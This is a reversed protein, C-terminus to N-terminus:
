FYIIINLTVHKNGKDLTPRGFLHFSISSCVPVTFVTSTELYPLSATEAPELSLVTIIQLRSHSALSSFFISKPFPINATM